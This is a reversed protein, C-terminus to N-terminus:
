VVLWARPVNKHLTLRCCTVLAETVLAESVHTHTSAAGQLFQISRHIDRYKSIADDSYTLAM